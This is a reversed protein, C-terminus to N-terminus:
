CGSRRWASPRRRHAWGTRWSRSAASSGPAAEPASQSLQLVESLFGPEHLRAAVASSVAAELEGAPIRWGSAGTAVSGTVLDTSLYYRYRRGKRRAHSPRMKRGDPDFLRGGAPKAERGRGAQQPDAPQRRPSGPGGALASRGRDHSAPRSPCGPEIASAASSSRTPSAPWVIEPRVKEPAYAM